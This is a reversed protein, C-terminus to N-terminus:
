GLNVVKLEPDRRIESLLEDTMRMYMDKQEERLVAYRIVLVLGTGTIKLYLQPESLDVPTRAAKTLIEEQRRLETRQKAYVRQVVAHIKDNASKYDITPSLALSIENWVFNTGPTQRFFPLPQFLISNSFGVIRGTPLYGLDSKEMELLYFSLVGSQTVRGTVGSLTIRDGVRIGGVQFFQFYAIVSMIVNQM